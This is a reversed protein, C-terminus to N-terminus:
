SDKLSLVNTVVTGKEQKFWITKIETLNSLNLQQLSNRTGDNRKEVATVLREGCGILCADVNM